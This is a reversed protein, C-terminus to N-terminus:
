EYGTAAVLATALLGWDPQAPPEQGRNVYYGDLDTLFGQLAQLFGELTPNQWERAGMGALDERMQGMVRLVDERSRAVAADSVHAFRGTQGAASKPVPTFAEAPWGPPLKRTFAVFVPGYSTDFRWNEFQDLEHETFRQLLSRLVEIESPTLSESM